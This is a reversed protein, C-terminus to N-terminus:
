INRELDLLGTRLHSYSPRHDGSTVSMRTHDYIIKASNGKLFLYKMVAQYEKATFDGINQAM